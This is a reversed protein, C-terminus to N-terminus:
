PTVERRYSARLLGRLEADASPTRAADVTVGVTWADAVKYEGTLRAVYAERDLADDFAASLELALRLDRLPDVAFAAQLLTYGQVGDDRRSALVRLAVGRDRPVIRAYVDVRYGDLAAVDQVDPMWSRRYAGEVRVDFTEVLHLTAGLSAEEYLMSSFAKLVSWDPLLARPDVYTYAADLHVHRTAALEAEGFAQSPRSTRVDWTGGARLDFYRHPRASVGVDVLRDTELGKAWRQVFAIDAAVLGAANWGLRAGYAGTPQTLNDSAGTSTLLRSVVPRGAFVEADFGAPLLVRAGAGDLHLGGPPGWTMFRRGLWVTAKGLRADAYGVAVDGAAIGGETDVTLDLAGWAAIHVGVRGDMLRDADLSIRMTLPLEDVRHWFRQSVGVETERVDLVWRPAWRMIADGRVEISAPRDHSRAAARGPIRDGVAEEGDPDADGGSATADSATADSATADSATADSATADSATADSATEDSASGDDSSSQAQVSGAGALALLLPVM